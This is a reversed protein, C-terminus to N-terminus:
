NIKHEWTHYWYYFGLASMRLYQFDRRSLSKEAMLNIALWDNDICWRWAKTILDELGEPKYHLSFGLKERNLFVEDFGMKRLMGKLISKNGYQKHRSEPISLACEVLRHDLFPARVELSHCGSAFDLTKNLDFKVYTILEFWRGSSLRKDSYDFKLAVRPMLFNYMEEDPMISRLIHQRQPITMVEHTRDYGFFLEDAGNATIAVRGFKSVEQSAIYPILGAMTPEGSQYSYDTLAAETDVGHPHIVKLKVHFKDAVRQAHHVEPSDLHIADMDHFQSAVLTSDIGGSLFIHIPVDSVKTKNIADFVLEEINDIANEQFQPEWYRKTTLKNSEIDLTVWESACVKKIGSWISDEGMTSGLLWYSQLADKNIQWKDKLCLLAGPTSAFAFKDGEHYYYLPKQGFRDVILHLQKLTKDYLGIAYMGNIERLTQEIGGCEFCRLLAGTDSDQYPYLEKYNYICGNFVMMFRTAEIPQEQHGIIALLNHAMYINEDAKKVGMYDPGRKTQHLAIEHIFSEEINVIGAIGCM